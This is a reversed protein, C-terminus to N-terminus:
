RDSPCNIVSRTSHTIRGASILIWFDQPIREGSGPRSPHTRRVEIQISGAFADPVFERM